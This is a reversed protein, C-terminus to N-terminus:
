HAWVSELDRYMDYNEKKLNTYYPHDKMLRNYKQDFVTFNQSLFELDDKLIEIMIPQINKFM